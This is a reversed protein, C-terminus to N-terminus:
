LQTDGEMWISRSVRNADVIIHLRKRELVPNISQFLSTGSIRPRPFTYISGSHSVLWATKRFKWATIKESPLRNETHTPFEGHLNM